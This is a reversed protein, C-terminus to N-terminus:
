QERAVSSPRQAGNGPLCAAFDYLERDMLHGPVVNRLANLLNAKVGPCEAELEDLLRKIRKRKLNPQGACAGCPLIPFCLAAALQAIEDESCRALPRIITSRGDEALLKPPMSKLAGAYMASLLLSEILDERHHGLAMKNCGLAVAANYLVGRRLRSCAWCMPKGPDTLQQAIPFTEERLMRYRVGLARLHEEIPRPSWGPQGQDLHVAVLEFSFPAEATLLLLMHLLVYSDKGGSVCVMVRDGESLLAYDRVSKKVSSLIKRELRGSESETVM